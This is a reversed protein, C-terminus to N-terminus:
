WFFNSSEMCFLQIFDCFSNHIMFFCKVRMSSRTTIAIMAIVVLLEILTFNWHSKQVFGSVKTTKM